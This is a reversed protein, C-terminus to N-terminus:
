LSLVLSTPELTTIVSHCYNAPEFVLLMIGRQATTHYLKRCVEDYRCKLTRLQSKVEEVEDGVAELYTSSTNKETERNTATAEV